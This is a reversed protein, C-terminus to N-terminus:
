VFRKAVLKCIKVFEKQSLKWKMMNVPMYVWQVNGPVYGKSSDIRDLSATCSTPSGSKGYGVRLPLGTLACKWNQKKMLKLVYAHDISLKIGRKSSAKRTRSFAAALRFRYVGRRAKGACKMCSKSVKRILTTQALERKTGCECICLYYTHLDKGSINKRIAGLRKMVKWKGVTQGTLDIYKAMDIM